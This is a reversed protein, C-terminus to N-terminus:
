VTVLQSVTINLADAMYFLEDLTPDVRGAELEVVQTETLGAQRALELRSLRQKERLSRVRGGFARLFEAESRENVGITM